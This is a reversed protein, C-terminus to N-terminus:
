RRPLSVMPSIEVTVLVGIVCWVIVWVAIMAAVTGAAVYAKQSIKWFRTRCDTCRYPSFFIRRLTAVSEPNSSRRTHFGHCGPCTRIM